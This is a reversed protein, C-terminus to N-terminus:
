LKFCEVILTTPIPNSLTLNDEDRKKDHWIRKSQVKELKVLRMVLSSVGNRDLMM